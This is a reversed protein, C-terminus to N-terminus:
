PTPATEPPNSAAQLIEKIREARLRRLEETLDSERLMFELFYRGGDMPISIKGVYDGSAPASTIPAPASGGQDARRRAAARAAAAAASPQKQSPSAM